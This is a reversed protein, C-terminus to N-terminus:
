EIRLNNCVSKSNYYHLKMNYDNFMNFPVIFSLITVHSDEQKYVSKNIFPNVKPPIEKFFTGMLSKTVTIELKPDVTCLISIYFVYTALEWACLEQMPFVLFRKLINFRGTKQDNVFETKM